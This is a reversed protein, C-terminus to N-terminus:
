PQSQWGGGLSQILAVATTQRDAQAQILARRASLASAQASVVQTYDVQGARYRNLMQVEAEDAAQSAQQRLAQQQALVRTATLQDEVDQFATLVAQRYRAAAQDRAARAASVQAGTAGANFITQAASLGVSWVQSSTEFLQAVKSAGFGDAATLGFSPFYASKAIGIQENAAAVHREAAAIDPRRQLLTSPVGVPIEPVMTNWPASALSFNGPARGTLVAIAHEFQARQRAVGAEDALANALQTQAQLVDTKAVIGAAYQNQTIQLVRRYGVITDDLLKQQADSQRLSFYNIALEGQTSLRAAALDAASAQFNANASQAARRLRGWIDPEWSAGINVKYNNRVASANSGNQTAGANDVGNAGGARTVGGNLSVTPLLAARQTRVMMRAQEYAAAAAAINQNSVEVQSALTNLTPDNFLKWWEGRDFTDAPTAPIWDHAEKYTSPTEVTPQHYDPGVACGGLTVLAAVVLLHFSPLPSFQRM